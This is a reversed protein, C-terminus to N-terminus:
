SNLLQLIHIIFYYYESYYHDGHMCLLFRKQLNQLANGEMFVFKKM